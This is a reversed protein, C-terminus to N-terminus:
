KKSLFMEKLLHISTQNFARELKQRKKALKKTNETELDSAHHAKSKRKFHNM